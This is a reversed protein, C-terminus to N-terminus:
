IKKVLFGLQFFWSNYYHVMHSHIKLNMNNRWWRFSPWTSLLMTRTLHLFMGELLMVLMFLIVQLWVHTLIRSLFHCFVYIWIALFDGITSDLHIVLSNPVFCMEVLMQLTLPHIKQSNLIIDWQCIYDHINM